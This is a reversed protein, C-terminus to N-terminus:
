QGGKSISTHQHANALRSVQEKLARVEAKLDTIAELNERMLAVYKEELDADKAESKATLAAVSTELRVANANAANVQYTLSGYIVGVSCLAGVFWPWKDQILNKMSRPTRPTTPTNEGIKTM